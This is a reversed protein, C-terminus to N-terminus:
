QQVKEFNHLFDHQYFRLGRDDDFIILEVKPCRDRVELMKDVQEQDEVLAIRVDANDLVYAMEDAVADQYLPVPIAGLTQAATMGWYLRPRNDGIIALKDGRKLGLRALGCALARIEVAAEAWTWSQWIGLDKERIADREPRLRVHSQLLKPFTDLTPDQDQQKM